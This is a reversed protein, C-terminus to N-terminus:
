RIFLLKRKVTYNGSQELIVDLSIYKNKDCFLNGYSKVRGIHIFRFRTMTLAGARSQISHIISAWSFDLGAALTTTWKVGMPFTLRWQFRMTHLAVQLSQWICDTNEAPSHSGKTVMLPTGPSHTFLTDVGHIHSTLSSGAAPLLGPATTQCQNTFPSLVAWQGARSWQRNCM